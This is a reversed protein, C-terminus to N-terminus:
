TAATASALLIARTADNQQRADDHYCDPHSRVRAVAKGSQRRRQQGVATMLRISLGCRLPRRLTLARAERRTFERGRTRLSGAAAARPCDMYSLRQGGM